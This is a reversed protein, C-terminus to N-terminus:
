RIAWNRRRNVTIESICAVTADTWCAGAPGIARPVGAVARAAKLM